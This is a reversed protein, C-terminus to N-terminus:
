ASSRTRSIEQGHQKKRYEASLYNVSGPMCYNKQVSCCTKMQDLTIEGRAKQRGERAATRVGGSPYQM